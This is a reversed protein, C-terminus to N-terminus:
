LQLPYSSNFCAGSVKLIEGIREPVDAAAWLPCWTATRQFVVEVDSEKRTFSLGDESKRLAYMSDKGRTTRPDYIYRCCVYLMAYRDDFGELVRVRVGM